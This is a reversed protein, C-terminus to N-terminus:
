PLESPPLHTPQKFLAWLFGATATVRHIHNEIFLVKLINIHQLFVSASFSPQVILPHHTSPAFGAFTPLHSSSSKSLLCFPVSLPQLRFSSVHLSISCKHSAWTERHLLILTIWPFLSLLLHSAWTAPKLSITLTHFLQQPGPSLSNVLAQPYHSNGTSTQLRFKRHYWHESRHSKEGLSVEAIQTCTCFLHNLTHKWHSTYYDGLPACLSPHVWVWM